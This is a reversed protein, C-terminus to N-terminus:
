VANEFYDLAQFIAELPDQDLTHDEALVQKYTIKCRTVWTQKLGKYEEHKKVTGTISEIIADEAIDNSTSWMYVNGDNDVFKYLYNICTSYYSYSSEYASVCKHEKVTFTIRQGVEGQYQSLEAESVKKAEALIRQAEKEIMRDYSFVASVIYGFDRIKCYDSGMITKMNNMYSSTEESELYYKKVAEVYADNNVNNYYQVVGSDVLYRNSKTEGRTLYFDFDLLMSKSSQGESSTSTFGLKTIVAKSMKLVTNLDQYQVFSGSSFYASDEDVDECIRLSEDMSMYAAVLEADYGGTFDRLCSNGVQKFEGTVVNHVLYTDNRRRLTKCHECYPGTTWFRDPIDIDIINRIVNRNEHHDITAVFEWDNIKAFGEVDVLVFRAVVQGEATDVKRFEEGVVEYHFSANYKKCKNQVRVLKKELKELNGEFIAYQM